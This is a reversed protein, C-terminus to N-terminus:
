QFKEFVIGIGCLSLNRYMDAFRGSGDFSHCWGQYFTAQQFPFVSFSVPFPNDFIDIQAALNEIYGTLAVWPNLCLVGIVM